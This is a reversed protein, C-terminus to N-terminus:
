NGPLLNRIRGREPNGMASIRKNLLVCFERAPLLVHPLWPYVLHAGSLNLSRLQSWALGERSLEPKSSTRPGLELLM